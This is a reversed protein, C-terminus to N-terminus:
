SKRDEFENSARDFAAKLESWAKRFGTGLEASAAKTDAWTREASTKATEVKENMTTSLDRSSASKNARAKKALEDIDARIAGYQESLERSLQTLKADGAATVQTQLADLKRGWEALRKEMGSPKATRKKAASSKAPKGAQRSKAAAPKPARTAAPKTARIPSPKRTAPSAAPQTKGPGQRRPEQRARPAVPQVDRPPTSQPQKVM